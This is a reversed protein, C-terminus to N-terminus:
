QNLFFRTGTKEHVKVAEMKFKLIAAMIKHNEFTNYVNNKLNKRFIQNLIPHCDLTNTM